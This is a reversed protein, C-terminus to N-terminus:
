RWFRDWRTVVAWWVQGWFGMRRFRITTTTPVEVIRGFQGDPDQMVDGVRATHPENTTLELTESM